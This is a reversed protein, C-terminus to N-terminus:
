WLDGEEPDTPETTSITVSAGGGAGNAALYEAVTKNTPIRDDRTPDMPFPITEGNDDQTSRQVDTGDVRDANLNTILESNNVTFAPTDVDGGEFVTQDKFTKIGYVSQNYSELLDGTHLFEETSPVLTGDVNSISTIAEVASTASGAVGKVLPSLEVPTITGNDEITVDGVYANGQNDFVLAGDHTGDYKNAVIGAYNVLPVYGESDDVGNTFDPNSRVEIISDETTVTTTNAIFNEGEVVLNGKIVVDAGPNGINVIRTTNINGESDPTDTGGAINVYYTETDSLDKNLLNFTSLSTTVDGSM